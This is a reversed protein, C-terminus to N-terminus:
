RLSIMAVITFGPGAPSSVRIDVAAVCPRAGTGTLTITESVPLVGFSSGVMAPVTETKTFSPFTACTGTGGPAFTVQVTTPTPETSVLEGRVTVVVPNGTAPSPSAGPNRGFLPM